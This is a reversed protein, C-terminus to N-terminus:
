DKTTFGSEFGLDKRGDGEEGTRMEGLNYGGEDYLVWLGAFGEDCEAIATQFM